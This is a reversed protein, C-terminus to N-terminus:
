WGEYQLKPEARETATTACVPVVGRPAIVGSEVTIMGHGMPITRDCEACVDKKNTEDKM